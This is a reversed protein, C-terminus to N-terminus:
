WLLVGAHLGYGIWKDATAVPGGSALSPLPAMNVCGPTGFDTMCGGPPHAPSPSSPVPQWLTVVEYGVHAGVFFYRLLRLDLALGVDNAVGNDSESGLWYHAY